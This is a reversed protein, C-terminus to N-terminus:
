SRTSCRACRNPIAACSRPLPTSTASLILTSGPSRSGPARRALQGFRSAGASARGNGERFGPNARRVRPSLCSMSQVTSRSLGRLDAGRRALERAILVASPDIYQPLCIRLARQPVPRRGTDCGPGSMRQRRLDAEPDGSPSVPRLQRFRAVADLLIMRRTRSRGSAELEVATGLGLNNYFVGADPHRSPDEPM